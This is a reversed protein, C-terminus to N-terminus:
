VYIRQATEDLIKTLHIFFSTAEKKPASGSAAKVGTGSLNIEKAEPVVIIIDTKEKNCNWGYKQKKKTIKVKFTGHLM